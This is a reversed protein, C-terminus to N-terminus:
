WTCAQGLRVISQIMAKIQKRSGAIRIATAGELGSVADLMTSAEVETIPRLPYGSWNPDYGLWLVRRKRPVLDVLLEPAYCEFAPALSRCLPIMRIWAGRYLMPDRQEVWRVGAATVNASGLRARFRVAEEPPELCCVRMFPPSHDRHLVSEPLGAGLGVAGTRYDFELFSVFRTTDMVDGHWLATAYTAVSSEAKKM